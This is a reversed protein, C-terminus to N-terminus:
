SPCATLCTPTWASPNLKARPRFSDVVRAAIDVISEHELQLRLEQAETQALLSLDSVLRNLYLTQRHVTDLTAADPQLLGDQMAEIHGQINSLPTRLVHAVDAVMSRRQRESDQPEKGPYPSSASSRRARAMTAPARSAAM